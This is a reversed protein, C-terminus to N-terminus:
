EAAPVFSINLKLGVPLGTDPAILLNKVVYPLVIEKSANLDKMKGSVRLVVTKNAELTVKSPFSVDALTTDSELEYSIDSSNHIQINVSNEGKITVQPNKIKVSQYFVPEAYETKGILLNQKFLATRGAFLAEKIGKLSKEKVFVLTVPRHNETKQVYHYDIPNHIDSTAMMTLNKDLCWQHAEPYYDNGNVVEVGHLWGKDYLFTHEDYWIGIGNPQRWGPHNMFVFGGQENAAKIADNVDETDLPNVDNLFIANIHGTPRERTIETGRPFILGMAGAHPLAIEYPRNHNTPIDDKHPQYEIHDTISIADLGDRWAEGVRITPWVNGDSFVTHMHFDCKLTTYGPIDPMNIETRSVSLATATFVFILILLVYKVVFRGTRINKM